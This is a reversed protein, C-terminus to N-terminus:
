INHMTVQSKFDEKTNFLTIFKYNMNQGRNKGTNLVKNNQHSLCKSKASFLCALLLVTWPFM